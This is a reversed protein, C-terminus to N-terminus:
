TPPIEWGRLAAWRRRGGAGQFAIFRLVRDTYSRETRISYGRQRIATVMRDMIERREARVAELSRTSGAPGLGAVGPGYDRAVTPHDAVLTRASTRWHEWDVDGVWAAGATPGLIQIADVVQVFKWAALRGDRGARDLYDSM